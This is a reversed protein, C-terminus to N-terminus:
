SNRKHVTKTLSHLVGNLREAERPYQDKLIVLASAAARCADDQYVETGTKVLYKIFIRNLEMVINIPEEPLESEMAIGRSYLLTKHSLM